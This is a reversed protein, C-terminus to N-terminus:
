AYIVTGDLHYLLAIAIKLILQMLLLPAQKIKVSRSYKKEKKASFASDNYCSLLIIGYPLFSCGRIILNGKINIKHKLKLQLNEVPMPPSLDAVMMQAQKDKRRVLTLEFPMSEFLVEGFKQISTTITKLGSDTKYSLKTQNLCDSYVITQICTDQTEVDKEIQKVAM